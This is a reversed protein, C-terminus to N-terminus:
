SNEGVQFRTLRKVTINEGLKLVVTNIYEQVTLKEDEIWNQNLLCVKSYWEQMQDKVLDYVFKPNGQLPFSRVSLIRHLVELEEKMSVETPIEQPHVWKPNAGAVHMALRKIFNQFEETRACFDIECNVEVIAVIKGGMHSYYGVAGETPKPRERLPSCKKLILEVAANIDGNTEYLAKKCAMIGANTVKRLQILSAVDVQYEKM